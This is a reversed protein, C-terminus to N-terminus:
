GHQGLDRPPTYPKMLVPKWSRGLLRRRLRRLGPNWRYPSLLRLLVAGLLMGLLVTLLVLWPSM